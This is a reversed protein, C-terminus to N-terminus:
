DDHRDESMKHLIRRASDPGREDIRNIARRSWYVLGSLMSIALAIASIGIITNTTMPNNHYPFGPLFSGRIGSKM